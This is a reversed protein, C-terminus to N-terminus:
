DGEFFCGFWVVPDKTTLPIQLLPFETVLSVKASQFVPIHDLDRKAKDLGTKSGDSARELPKSFEGKPSLCDM